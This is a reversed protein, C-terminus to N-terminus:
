QGLMKKFITTTLKYFRVSGEKFGEEKAKEKAEEWRKEAEEVSVGAKEAFSKVVSSPM